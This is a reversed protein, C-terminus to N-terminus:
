PQSVEVAAKRRHNSRHTTVSVPRALEAGGFEGMVQRRASLASRVFREIQSRQTVAYSGIVGAVLGMAFIGLFPWRSPPSPQRLM